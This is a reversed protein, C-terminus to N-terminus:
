ATMRYLTKSILETGPLSDICFNIERKPPIGPIEKVFVDSFRQLVLHDISSGQDASEGLDNVSIAFLTCGKPICRAM